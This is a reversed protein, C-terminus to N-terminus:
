SNRTTIEIKEIREILQQMGVTLVSIMAGLDRGPVVLEKGGESKKTTTRQVFKPLSM